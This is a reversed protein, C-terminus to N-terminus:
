WGPGCGQRRLSCIGPTCITTHGVQAWDLVTEVPQSSLMSEVSGKVISSDFGMTYFNTKVGSYMAFATAASDPVMSNVNYTKSMGVHPFTEWALKSSAGDVGARQGKLVRAGVVTSLSMGDGVVLVINKALRTNYQLNAAEELEKRGLDMWYEGNEKEGLKVQAERKRRAPGRVQHLADQPDEAHHPDAAALLLSSLLVLVVM